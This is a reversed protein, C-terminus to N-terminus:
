SERPPRTGPLQIKVPGEDDPPLEPPPDPYEEVPGDRYDSGDPHTSHSSQAEMSPAGDAQDQTLPPPAQSGKTSTKAARRSKRSKAKAKELLRKRDAEEQSHRRAKIEYDRVLTKPPEGFIAEYECFECIWFDASSPRNALYSETALRRRQREAAHLEKDLRRRERRRSSGSGGSTAKSSGSPQSSRRGNEPPPPPPPPVPPTPKSITKSM